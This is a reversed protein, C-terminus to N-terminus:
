WKSEIINLKIRTLGFVEHNVNMGVRELTEKLGNHLAETNYAYYETLLVDLATMQKRIKEIAKKVQENKPADVVMKKAWISKEPEVPIPKPKKTIFISKCSEERNRVKCIKRAGSATIVILSATMVSTCGPNDKKFLELDEGALLFYDRSKILLGKKSWYPVLNFVGTKLVVALDRKTIVPIGRYYKLWPKYPEEILIQQEIEYKGTKRIAPIVEHTIWRKFAKAQPKRSALVLNYLGYENVVNIKDNGKNLGKISILAKEDDDLRRITNTVQGIELARCVDVAIFLIEENQQITRIEGFQENEFVQLKNM